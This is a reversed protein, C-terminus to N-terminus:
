FNTNIEMTVEKERQKWQKDNVNTVRHWEKQKENNHSLSALMVFNHDGTFM